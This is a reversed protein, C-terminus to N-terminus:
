NSGVPRTALNDALRDSQELWNRLYGNRTSVASFEGRGFRDPISYAKAELIVLVSGILRCCDAQGIRRGNAKFTKSTRGEHNAFVKVGVKELHNEISVELLDGKLKKAKDGTSVGSALSVLFQLVGALDIFLSGSGRCFKKPNMGQLDVEAPRFVALRMFAEVCRDVEDSDLVSGFFAEHVKPLGGKLVARMNEESTLYGGRSILQLIALPNQRVIGGWPLSLAGLSSLVIYPSLGHREEFNDEILKVYPVFTSLDVIGIVFRAEHWPSFQIEKDDITIRGDREETPTGAVLCYPTGSQREDLKNDPVFVGLSAFASRLDSQRSDYLDILYELDPTPEADDLESNRLILRSGKGIRRYSATLAYYEAAVRYLTLLDIVSASDIRPCIQATGGWQGVASTSPVSDFEGEAAANLGFKIAALEATWRVNFQTLWHRHGAMKPLRRLVLTWYLQSHRVAIDALSRELIELTAVITRAGDAGELVKDAPIAEYADRIITESRVNAIPGDAEVRDVIHVSAIDQLTIAPKAHGEMKSLCCKKYKKGSACFCPDNRGLEWTDM